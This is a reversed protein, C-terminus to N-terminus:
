SLGPLTTPIRYQGTRLWEVPRVTKPTRPSAPRNPCCCLGPRATRALAAGTTATIKTAVVITEDQVDPPAWLIPENILGGRFGPRMDLARCAGRLDDRVSVGDDMPILGDGGLPHHAGVVTRATLTARQGRRSPTEVPPRLQGNWRPRVSM